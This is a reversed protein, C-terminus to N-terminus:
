HTPGHHAPTPSKALDALLVCVIFIGLCTKSCSM